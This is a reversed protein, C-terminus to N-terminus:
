LRNENHGEATFYPNNRARYSIPFYKLKVGVKAAVYNFSIQDRRSNNQIEEWWAENFKRVIDNNRRVIIGAEALQNHAPYGERKYRAIQNLIVQPDDLKMDICTYAEDYICDRDPHRHILIDADGMEKQIIKDLPAKLTISGDIWLTYDVDPFYRHSMVKYLKANRTNDDCHTTLPRVDWTTSKAPKEMFAVFPIGATVQEKLFDYRGTIATYVVIKSKDLKPPQNLFRLMGNDVWKEFFVAQNNHVWSGGHSHGGKHYIISDPTYVVRYGNMRVKMNLDSDEWYGVLYDRDFGKLREFLARPIAFCAGTVMEREGVQLLDQPINELRFPRDLGSGHYSSRGIHLFEAREHSWESGCSDVVGDPKLHLNGVIGISKDQELLDIMPKVWNKTVTVDANLFVLYKGHALSAGVNCAGSFGGNRQNVAILMNPTTDRKKWAPLIQQHSEEPCCDDVYIIEKTLGDDELDWSAIQEQIEERSHYLPIIISVM